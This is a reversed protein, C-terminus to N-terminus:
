RGYITVTGADFNGAGWAVRVATIGGTCVWALTSDGSAVVPDAISATMGLSVHGADYRVGALVASGKYASSAPASLILDAGTGYSVGDPSVTLRLNTNGGNNHSVGSFVLMLEQYATSIGSFTVTGTGTPTSTAIQTWGWTGATVGAIQADVYTKTTLHSAVTPTGSSKPIVSGFDPISLLYVNTADCAVLMVAGTPVSATTGGGTTVTVAGSTNNRVIYWKEVSPITVTGGTGSTIDIFRMRSEDAAYNTSSLTKSGSLTFTVRGDLASDVLDILSSNLVAGWTNNNDGTGQKELRNRTTATSVM